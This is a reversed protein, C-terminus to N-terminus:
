FDASFYVSLALLPNMLSARSLVARRLVTGPWGSPPWSLGLTVPGWLFLFRSLRRFGEVSSIFWLQTASLTALLLFCPLLLLCLSTGSGCCLTQFVPSDWIEWPLHDITGIVRFYYQRCNVSATSTWLAQGTQWMGLLHQFWSEKGPKRQTKRRKGKM